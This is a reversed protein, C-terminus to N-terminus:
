VLLVFIDPRNFHLINGPLVSFVLMVKKVAYGWSKKTIITSLFWRFYFYITSLQVYNSCSSIRRSVVPVDLHRLANRLCSHLGAPSVWWVKPPPTGKAAIHRLVQFKCM